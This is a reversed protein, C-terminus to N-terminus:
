SHEGKGVETFHRTQGMSLRLAHGEKMVQQWPVRFVAFHGAVM